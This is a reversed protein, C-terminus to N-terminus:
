EARLSTAPDVQFTQGLAPPVGIVAFFVLARSVRRPRGRGTLNVSWLHVASLDEFSRSRERWDQYNPESTLNRGAGPRERLAAVVREPAPLPLPKVLYANVISFTATNAGIGLAFTAVAAM